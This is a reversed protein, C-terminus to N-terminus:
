PSLLGSRGAVASIQGGRLQALLEGRQASMARFRLVGLIQGIVGFLLPGHRPVADLQLLSPSMGTRLATDVAAVPPNALLSRMGTPPILTAVAQWQGADASFRATVANNSQNDLRSLLENGAIDAVLAISESFWRSAHLTAACTEESLNGSEGGCQLGDHWQEGRTGGIGAPMNTAM